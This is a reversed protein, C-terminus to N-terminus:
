MGEKRGEKRGGMRRLRAGHASSTARPHARPAAGLLSGPAREQQQLHCRMGVPGPAQM